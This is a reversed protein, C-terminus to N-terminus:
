ASRRLASSSPASLRYVRGDWLRFPQEGAMTLRFGHQRAADAAEAADLDPAGRYSWNFVLLEGGPRLLRAADALHRDLLPGGCQVLYPLSDVALILDFSRDELFALDRGGGQAYLVNRASTRRRAEVLMGWAIDVAAVARVRGAVAAAVRGIGCGLDLVVADARLLGAADLYAVLEDTAQRLLDESGLSYLAVSGPGSVRAARDFLAAWRALGEEPTAAPRAHDAADIIGRVTAFADPNERVLKLAAELRQRADGDRAAVAAELAGAAATGDSAEILVEMAAVAAPVEGRACREIAAAVGDAM